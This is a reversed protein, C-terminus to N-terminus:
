DSEKELEKIRKDCYFIIENYDAVRDKVNPYLIRSLIVVDDSTL